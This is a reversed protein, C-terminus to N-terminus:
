KTTGKQELLLADVSACAIPITGKRDLVQHKIQKLRCLRRVVKPGVRFVAAAEPVTLVDGLPQM